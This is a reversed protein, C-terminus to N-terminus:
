NRNCGLLNQNFCGNDVVIIFKKSSKRHVFAQPM